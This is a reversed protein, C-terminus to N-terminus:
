ANRDESEASCPDRYEEITFEETEYYDYAKVTAPKLNDVQIDQEVSFSFSLTQNTLEEFYILVHNTSMDTRQIQPKEQLKRVSSKVPIFGSIMKVDVIVMNSSPREGTYSINIHIQVKRHAHVGDCNQSLTDVKLTFPVKGEKKPLVNYRLSTQLYVCGSGSVTTSYEGPIEPLRVEQLLLRNADHVQFEESFTESSKVTVVAAKERKSFTAAGYKSLAQLAVVTDVFMMPQPVFGTLLLTASDSLKQLTPIFGHTLTKREGNCGSQRLDLEHLPPTVVHQILPINKTFYLKRLLIWKEAPKKGGTNDSLGM